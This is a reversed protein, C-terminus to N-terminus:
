MWMMGAGMGMGYGQRADDGAYGHCEEIHERWDDGHVEEHHERMADFWSDGQDSGAHALAITSGLIVAALAVTLLMWTRM